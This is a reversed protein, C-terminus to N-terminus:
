LGNSAAAAQGGMMQELQAVGARVAEVGETAATIRNALLHTRRELEQACQDLNTRVEKFGSINPVVYRAGRVEEDQRAVTGDADQVERLRRFLLEPGEGMLTQGIGQTSSSAAQSQNQDAAAAIAEATLYREVEDHSPSESVRSFHTPAPSTALAQRICRPVDYYDSSM